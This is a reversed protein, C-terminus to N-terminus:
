WKKGGIDINNIKRSIEPVLKIPPMLGNLVLSKRSLDLGMIKNM